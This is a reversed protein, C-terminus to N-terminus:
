MCLTIKNVNIKKHTHYQKRITIIEICCEYIIKEQSKKENEKDVERITYSLKDEKLTEEFFTAEKEFNYWNLQFTRWKCESNTLLATHLPYNQPRRSELATLTKM